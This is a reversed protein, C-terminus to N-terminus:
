SVKKTQPKPTSELQVVNSVFKKIDDSLLVPEEFAAFHGGRPMDTYQVLNPFQYRALSRSVHSFENPFDAYGVPVTDPM